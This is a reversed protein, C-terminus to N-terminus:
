RYMEYLDILLTFQSNDLEVEKLNPQITGTIVFNAAALNKVMETVYNEM